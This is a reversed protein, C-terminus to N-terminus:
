EMYKDSMPAVSEIKKNEFSEINSYDGRWGGSNTARDSVPFLLVCLGLELTYPNGMNDSINWNKVNM